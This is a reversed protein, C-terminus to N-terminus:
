FRFCFQISFYLDGLIPLNQFLIITIKFGRYKKQKEHQFNSNKKKM